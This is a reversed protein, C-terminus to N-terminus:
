SPLIKTKKVVKIEPQDNDRDEDSDDEFGNIADEFEKMRELCDGFLLSYNNSINDNM